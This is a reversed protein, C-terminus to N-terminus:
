NKLLNEIDWFVDIEPEIEDLRNKVSQYNNKYYEIQNKLYEIEFTLDIAAEYNVPELEAVLVNRKKLYKFCKKIDDLYDISYCETYGGVKSKPQHHENFSLIREKLVSELGRITYGDSEISDILTYEYNNEWEMREEITKSTIGIKCFTEEDNELVVLYLIHKFDLTKIESYLKSKKM